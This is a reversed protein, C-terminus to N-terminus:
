EVKACHGYHQDNFLGCEMCEMSEVPRAMQKVVINENRNPEVKPERPSWIGKPFGATVIIKYRM